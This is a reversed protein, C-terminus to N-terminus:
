KNKWFQYFKKYDIVGDMELNSSRLIKEIEEEKFETTGLLISFYERCTVFGKKNTDFFRFANLVSEEETLNNQDVSDLNSDTETLNSEDLKVAYAQTKPIKKVQKQSISSDM